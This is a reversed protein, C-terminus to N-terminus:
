RNSNRSRRQYLAHGVLFFGSSRDGVKIVVEFEVVFHEFQGLFEGIHLCVEGRELM